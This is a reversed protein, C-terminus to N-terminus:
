KYVLKYKLHTVDTGDTVQQSELKIQEAGIHDFLRIGNGILIPSVHLHMEDLMGARIFQGAISATGISVNKGNATDKAQKVANEIGDTAFIFRTNGEIYSEPAEHTVVIIPVGQIPHNGEWGNVIDFTRRGVLMAGTNPIPSDFVERNTGSLRFFDNYRSPQDGSFLWNQIAVGGKGLPQTGNDNPGTIFGDLSMSIDLIVKGM